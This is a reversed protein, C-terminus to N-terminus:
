GIVVLRHMDIVSHPFERPEVIAPVEDECARRTESLSHHCHPKPEVGDVATIGDAKLTVTM